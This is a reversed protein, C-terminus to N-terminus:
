CSSGEAVIEILEYVDDANERMYKEFEDENPEIDKEKCEERYQSWMADEIITSNIRKGKYEIEPDTQTNHWIFGIGPIGYWDPYEKMPFSAAGDKVIFDRELTSTM